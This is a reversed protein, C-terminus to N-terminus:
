YYCRIGGQPNCNLNLVLQLAIHCNSIRVAMFTEYKGGLTYPLPRHEIVCPGCVDFYFTFISM